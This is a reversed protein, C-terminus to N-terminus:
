ALVTEKLIGELEDKMLGLIRSQIIDMSVFEYILSLFMLNSYLQLLANMRLYYRTMQNRLLLAPDSYSLQYLPPIYVPRGLFRPDIGSPVLSINRKEVADLGARPGV